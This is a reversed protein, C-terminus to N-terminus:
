QGWFNPMVDNSYGSVFPKITGDDGYAARQVCGINGGYVHISIAVDSSSNTVRHIDGVVPSVADVDGRTFAETQGTERPVAESDLEYRTASETGRMVGILGWTRHDHVPTFQGPAWVFSVLSFASRSDCHLLYQRYLEGDALAFSSPLWDDYTVLGELLEAGHTLISTESDTSHVLDGMEGVFRGLRKLNVSM